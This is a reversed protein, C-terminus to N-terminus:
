TIPKNKLTQSVSLQPIGSIMKQIIEVEEEDAAYHKLKWQLGFCRFFCTTRTKTTEMVAHLGFDRKALLQM